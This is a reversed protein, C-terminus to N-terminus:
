RHNTMAVVTEEAGDILEAEYEMELVSIEEGNPGQEVGEVYTVSADVTGPFGEEDNKSHYKWQVIRKSSGGALKESVQHLNWLNKGWGIIGGHLCNPGNNAALEYTRGNLNDIRANKIRNAVRGITEGFYPVNYKRYEEATNFNQVINMGDVRFSHIIAGLPLFEAVSSHLPHAMKLDGMNRHQM